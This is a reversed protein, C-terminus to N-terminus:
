RRLGNVVRKASACAIRTLPIAGVAARGRASGPVVVTQLGDDAITFRSKYAESGRLFRYESCGDNIAERITHALLVFGVSGREDAPNRGSQYFSEVGAFRLGYWAAAPRGDSLASM